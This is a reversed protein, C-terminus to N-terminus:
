KWHVSIGLMAPLLYREPDVNNAFKPLFGSKSYLLVQPVLVLLLIGSPLIVGAQRARRVVDTFQMGYARKNVAIIALAM